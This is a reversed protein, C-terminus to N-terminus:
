SSAPEELRPFLPASKRVSANVVAVIVRDFMGAARGIVDLHGNTVPDFSGPCACRRVREVEM